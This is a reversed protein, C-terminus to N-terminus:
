SIERGGIFVAKLKLDRSLLLLDARMGIKLRGRDDLGLLAAPNAATMMAIAGISAGVREVMLRTGDLMSIVSGALTGDALRVAGDKVRASARGVSRSADGAEGGLAVRDSTLIMGTAGRAQYVLKLVAPDVHVGDPIVAPMAASPLLAATIVGPDRHRLPRMANFLHTFMRAGAAIGIEAEALSADTHGISVVVERACLRRIAEPAGPLEPALTVLRLRQLGLVCELPAGRPELNLPPHAGLRAPSIFPGELHMGLIAAQAHPASVGSRGAQEGMATAIANHAREIQDLPATVATPLFATTGDRALHGGLMALEEPAATMVDIGHSGNVQLDIFGPLLYDDGGSATEIREIREGFSIQGPFTLGDGSAIVGNLQKM